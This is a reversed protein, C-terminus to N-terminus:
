YASADAQSYLIVIKSQGLEVSLPFETIKPYCEVQAIAATMLFCMVYSAVTIPTVRVKLSSRGCGLAVCRGLGKESM